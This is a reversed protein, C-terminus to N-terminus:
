PITLRFPSQELAPFRSKVAVRAGPRDPAIRGGGDEQRANLM